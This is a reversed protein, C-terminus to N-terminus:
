YTIAEKSKTEKNFLKRLEPLLKRYREPHNEALNVIKKLFIEQYKQKEEDSAKGWIPMIDEVSLSKLNHLTRHVTALSHIKELDEEYIKGMALDKQLRSVIENKPSNNKIAEKYDRGYESVLKMRDRDSKLPTAVFKKGKEEQVAKDFATKAEYSTIGVSM